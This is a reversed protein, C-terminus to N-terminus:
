CGARRKLAAYFGEHAGCMWIVVDNGQVEWAIRYHINQHRVAGIHLVRRPRRTCIIQERYGPPRRPDQLAATLVAFAQQVPRPLRRLERDVSHHLHVARPM